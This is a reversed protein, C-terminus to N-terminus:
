VTLWDGDEVLCSGIRAIVHSDLSQASKMLCHWPLLDLFTWQQSALQHESNEMSAIAVISPLEDSICFM